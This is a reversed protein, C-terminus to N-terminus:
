SDADAGGDTSADATLPACHAVGADSVVCVGRVRACPLDGAPEWRQSASCVEPRDAACRMSRPACGSVPPLRPHCGLSALCLFALAFLRWRLRLSDILRTM